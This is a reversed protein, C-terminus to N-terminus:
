ATRGEQTFDILQGQEEPRAVARTRAPSIALSAAMAPAQAVVVLLVGRRLCRSLDRM